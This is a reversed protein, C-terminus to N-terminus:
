TQWTAGVAFTAKRRDRVPSLFWRDRFTPMRPVFSAIKAASAAAATGIGTRSNILVIEFIRDCRILLWNISRDRKASFLQKKRFQIQFNLIFNFSFTPGNQRSYQVYMSKRKEHNMKSSSAQLHQSARKSSDTEAYDPIKWRRFICINMIKYIQFSCQNINLFNHSWKFNKM